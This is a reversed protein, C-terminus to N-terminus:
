LSLYLAEARRAIDTLDFREARALGADRMRSALAPDALIKLVGDAFDAPDVGRVLLGTEGDAVVEPIGDVDTAVAPVGAVLAEILVGGLAERRSPLVLVSFNQLLRYADARYGTFVTRGAIGLEEALGLLEREYDSPEASREGYPAGVLVFWASPRVAAVLAAARLFVDPQKRADIAGLFGVIEAADPVGLSAVFRREVPLAQMARADRGSHLVVLREDLFRLWWGPANEFWPAVAGKSVAVVRDARALLWRRFGSPREKAHMRERPVLKVGALRCALWCVGLLDYKIRNLELVEVRERRLWAALRPAALLARWPRRKFGGLWELRHVPIGRDRAAEELPGPERTIILPTIVKPDLRAAAELMSLGAGFLHSIHSVVAVRRPLRSEEM